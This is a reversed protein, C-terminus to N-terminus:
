DIRVLALQTRAVRAPEDLLKANLAELKMRRHLPEERVIAKGVRKVFRDLLAALRRQEVGPLCADARPHAGAVVHPEFIRVRHVEVVDGDIEWVHRNDHGMRGERPLFLRESDGVVLRVDVDVQRAPRRLIKRLNEDLVAVRKELLLHKETGVPRHDTRLAPQGVELFDLDLVLHARENEFLIRRSKELERLRWRGPLSSGTPIAATTTVIELWGGARMRKARSTPRQPRGSPTSPISIGNLGRSPRAARKSRAVCAADSRWM